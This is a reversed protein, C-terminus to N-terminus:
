TEKNQDRRERFCDLEQMERWCQDEIDLVDETVTVTHSEDTHYVCTLKGDQFLYFWRFYRHEYLFDESDFCPFRERLALVTRGYMDLAWPGNKEEQVTLKSLDPYIKGAARFGVDLQKVEAPSPRRERLPKGEADTERSVWQIRVSGSSSYGGGGSHEVRQGKGNSAPIMDSDWGHPIPPGETVKKEASDPKSGQPSLKAFLRKVASELAM